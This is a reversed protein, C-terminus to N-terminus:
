YLYRDSYQQKKHCTNNNRLVCLFYKIIAIINQKWAPCSQSHRSRAPCHCSSAAVPSPAAGVCAETRWLHLVETSIDVRTNSLLVSWSFVSIDDQENCLLCHSIETASQGYLCLVVRFVGRCAREEMVLPLKRSTGWYVKLQGHLTCKTKLTIYSRNTLPCWKEFTDWWWTM